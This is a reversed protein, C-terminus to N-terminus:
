TGGFFSSSLGGRVSRSMPVSCSFSVGPPPPICLGGEGEGGGGEGIGEGEGGGGEGIGEGENAGDRIGSGSTLDRGGVEGM